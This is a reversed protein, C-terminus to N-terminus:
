ISTERATHGIHQTSTHLSYTVGNQKGNNADMTTAKRSSIYLHTAFTIYSLAKQTFKLTLMVVLSHLDMLCLNGGYVKAKQWSHVLESYTSRGLYSLGNEQHFSLLTSTEVVKKKGSKKNSGMLCKIAPMTLNAIGRKGMGKMITKLFVLRQHIASCLTLFIWNEPVPVQVNLNM